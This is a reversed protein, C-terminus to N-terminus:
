TSYMETGRARTDRSASRPAPRRPRNLRVQLREASSRQDVIPAHGRWARSGRAGTGPIECGADASAGLARTRERTEHAPPVGSFSCATRHAPRAGRRSARWRRPQSLQGELELIAPGRPPTRLASRRACRNWRIKLPEGVLLECLEPEQRSRPIGMAQIRNRTASMRRSSVPRDFAKRRPGLDACRRHGPGSPCSPQRAV